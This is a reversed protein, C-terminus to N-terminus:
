DATADTWTNGDWYRLRKEGKPDAFWGAPPATPAAPSPTQPVASPARAPRVDQRLREARANLGEATTSARAARWNGRGTKKSMKLARKEQKGAEKEVQALQHRDLSLRMRELRTMDSADPRTAARSAIVNAGTARAMDSFVDAQRDGLMELAVMALTDGGSAQFDFVVTYAHRNKMLAM